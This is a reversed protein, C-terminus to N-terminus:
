PLEGDQDGWVWDQGRIVKANPFLGRAPIKKSLNRAPLTMSYFSCLILFSDYDRINFQFRIRPVDLYNSLIQKSSLDGCYENVYRNDIKKNKCDIRLFQHDLNHEGSFYCPTCLDFDPCESCRWRIGIINPQHCSGCSIGPHGM